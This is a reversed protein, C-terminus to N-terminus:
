REEIIPDNGSDPGKQEPFNTQVSAAAAAVAAYKVSGANPEAM